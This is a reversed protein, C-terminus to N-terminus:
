YNWGLFKVKRVIPTFIYLTNRRQILAGDPIYELIGPAYSAMEWFWRIEEKIFKWNKM